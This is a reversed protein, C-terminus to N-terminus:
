EDPAARGRRPKEELAALRQAMEALQTELLTAREEAAQRAAGERELAAGAEASDLYARAKDRMTRSGAGLNQLAGDPVAAFDEVTRIGQAKYTLIASPTLIPWQELPTGTVAIEQGDKFARYQEPWRDKHEQTVEEVPRSLSMGPTFIEVFERDEFVPRGEQQTRFNNQEARLHFRPYSRDQTSGRPQFDLNM